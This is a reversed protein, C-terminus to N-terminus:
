VAEEAEDKHIECMVCMDMLNMLKIMTWLMAIACICAAMSSACIMLLITLLTEM